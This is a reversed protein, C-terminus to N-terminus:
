KVTRGKWEYNGFFGLFGASIIYIIHLPQLAPFWALEKTKGFFKSVSWLYVLEFFTKALLCSILVMWYATDWFGLILLVLLNANFVYVLLLTLNLKVDSYKGNKSAWRIRQNLFSKWTPQCPTQVISDTSKLYMVGSPFVKEIKNMLMMDDGSALHQLDKYGGVADFASKRFSLNAGNSMNGMKLANVSATIGQMTMFDLSQLYYLAGKKNSPTFSVPATVFQISENQYCNHIQNLWNEPVVCDADTTVVIAGKAQSIAIELAKKKYAVILEEKSLFQELQLVVGNAVNNQSFFDQALAVTNDTSFDDILIIEYQRCPFQNKVISDLLQVINGAENRAPILISLVYEQKVPVRTPSKQKLWGWKYCLLLIIYALLLLLSLYIYM